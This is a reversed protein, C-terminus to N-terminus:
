LDFIHNKLPLHHQDALIQAIKLASEYLLSSCYIKDELEKDRGLRLEIAGKMRYVSFMQKPERPTPKFEALYESLKANALEM